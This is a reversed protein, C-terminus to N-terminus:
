AFPSKILEKVRVRVGGITGDFGLECNAMEPKSSQGVCSSSNFMQGVSAGVRM